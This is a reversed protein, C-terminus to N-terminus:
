VGALDEVVIIILRAPGHVGITLVREVDATLSPCTILSLYGIEAPRQLTLFTALDPVIRNGRVLAIHTPPLTSVLRQAVPSADQALSGTDAIAWGLQSIGVLSGAARELTVDFSLGPVRARLADRDIGDLFPCPAWAAWCSPRDAVGESRLQQEILDLAEVRTPLRHVEASVETARAEFTAFM